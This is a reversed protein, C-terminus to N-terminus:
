NRIASKPSLITLPLITGCRDRYNDPRSHKGQSGAPLNTVKKSLCFIYLLDHSLRAFKLRQGFGINMIITLSYVFEENGFAVKIFYLILLDLNNAIKSVM